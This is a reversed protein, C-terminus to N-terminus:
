YSPLVLGKRQVFAGGYTKRISRDSIIIKGRLIVIAPWVRLPVGEYPTYNVKQHLDAFSIVSNREDWVVLDADSGIAITGKKPYLGYIKAPTTATLDVFKNLTIKNAQVGYTYLLPLRTELGPVGNPVTSFDDQIKDGKEYNFAVHDSSVINIDGTRMANWLSEQSEKDRPPPSCVYKEGGNHETENGLDASTLLLYQPCTESFVPKGSLKADRIVDITKGGSVHVLLIPAMALESLVIARYAAEREVLPPRSLAHCIPAKLGRSLLRDTMWSICDANEAHIMALGGHESIVEILSLIDYDNMRLSDYTMYIKFSPYGMKIAEPIDKVTNGNCTDTIISHIGYDVYSRSEVQTTYRRIADLLRQGRQQLAFPIITTTGGHAAAATASPFDDVTQRGGDDAPQEIHCHADVGGPTVVRYNVDYVDDGTLDTGIGTILGGRICLDSLFTDTATVCTCNKLVFTRDNGSSM